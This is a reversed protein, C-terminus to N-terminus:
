TTQTKYKVTFHDVVSEEKEVSTVMGVSGVWYQVHTCDIVGKAYREVTINVVTSVDVLSMEHSM